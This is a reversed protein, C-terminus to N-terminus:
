PGLSSLILRRNLIHATRPAHASPDDAASKESDILAVINKTIRKVEELAPASKSSIMASGGLPLLVIKHDKGVLRLFQQIAQVESVGEVLLVKDFGLEQYSSFGLSGLFEALNPTAEFLVVKSVGDELAQVSYIRNAAARALGISHTAFLVGTKAYSALTMLFDIQLSPHLNLEPEDILVLDRKNIAVNALAIIFQTIGSGLEYLKYPRDNIVVQLTRDNAAPLIELRQYGFLHEIRRVVESIITNHEKTNGTQMERWRKVFSEGVQIDYYSENTGVNLINRFAPIYFTSSLTSGARMYSGLNTIVQDQRRLVGDHIRMNQDPSIQAGNAPTVSTVRWQNSNRVIAIEMQRAPPVDSAPEDHSDVKLILEIPRDNHAHFVETGDLVSSSQTFIVPQGSLVKALNSEEALTSFLSRFEYFFRLLSSKGANNVGLLAILGDRIELQAPHSDPFCRYNKLTLQIRM